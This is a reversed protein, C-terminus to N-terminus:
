QNVKRKKYLLINIRLNENLSCYIGEEKYVELCLFFVLISVAKVHDDDLDVHFKM